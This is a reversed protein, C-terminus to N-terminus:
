GKEIIAQEPDIYKQMPMVIGMPHIHGSVVNQVNTGCQLIETCMVGTRDYCRRNCTEGTRLRKPCNYFAM